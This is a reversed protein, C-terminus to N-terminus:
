GTGTALRYSTGKWVLQVDDGSGELVSGGVLLVSGDALGAGEVDFLTAPLDPLPSWAGTAPDYRETSLPPSAGEGWGTEGGLAGGAVVVSGDGLRAVVAGLRSPTPTRSGPAGSGTWAFPDGTDSWSQDAASFRFSRVLEAEHKWWVQHGVLVAGGDPLAVLSGVDGPLGDYEPLTVGLARIQARDMPPLDGAMAFRGRAADFVEANGFAAEDLHVNHDSASVVLVRGDSLTVAAPGPRAFRLAGTSSWEGTAPDWIEATALARGRPPVDIDDFPGPRDDGDAAPLRAAALVIGTGFAAPEDEPQYFYGGAVLVRGDPLLAAAPATRAQAMLGTKTWTETAPDFVYASSYSADVGNYGGAVLVRGDRLAIAAFDTRLKPLAATDRWTGTAPEWLQAVKPDASEDEQYRLGIRLASGDPLAVTRDDYLELAGDGAPVWRASGVDPTASPAPTASQSPGGTATAPPVTPTPGLGSPSPAPTVAAPACAVITLMAVAVLVASGRRTPDIASWAM